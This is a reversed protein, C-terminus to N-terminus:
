RRRLLLQVADGAVRQEALEVTPSTLDLVVYLEPPSLEPHYGLRVRAVEESGVERVEAGSGTNVRTLRLLVRPPNSLMNVRLRENAIEGDARLSVETGAAGSRWSVEVLTSAPPLPSPSPPPAPEAAVGVPPELAAEPHTAPGPPGALSPGEAPAQAPPVGPFGETAPPISSTRPGASWGSLLRERQWFAAALLLVALALWVSAPVGRRRSPPPVPAVEEVPPLIEEVLEEFSQRPKKFVGTELHLPPPESPQTFPPSAPPTSFPSHREPAPPAAPEGAFVDRIEERTGDLDLPRTPKLFLEEFPGPGFPSEDSPPPPEGRRGRRDRNM